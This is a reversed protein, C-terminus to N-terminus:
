YNSLRQNKINHTLGHFDCLRVACPGPLCSFGAAMVTSTSFACTHQAGRTTTSQDHTVCLKIHIWNYTFQLSQMKSLSWWTVNVACFYNHIFYLFFWHHSYSSGPELLFLFLRLVMERSSSCGWAKGWPHRGGDVLTMKLVQSQCSLRQHFMGGLSLAAPKQPPPRCQGCWWCPLDELNPLYHVFAKTSPPFPLHKQFTLSWVQVLGFPCLLCLGGPSAWSWSPWIQARILASQHM